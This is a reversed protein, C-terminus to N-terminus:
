QKAGEKAMIDIIFKQIKLPHKKWPMPGLNGDTAHIWNPRNEDMWAQWNAPAPLELLEPKEEAAPAPETKTRSCKWCTMFGPTKIPASCILCNM